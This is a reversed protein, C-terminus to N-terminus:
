SAFLVENPLRAKECEQIRQKLDHTAVPFIEKVKHCVLCACMHLSKNVDSCVHHFMECYYFYEGDHNHKLVSVISFELNQCLILLKVASMQLAALTDKIGIAYLADDMAIHQM